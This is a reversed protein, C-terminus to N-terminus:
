DAFRRIKSPKAGGRGLNLSNLYPYFRNKSEQAVSRLNESLDDIKISPPLRWIANACSKQFCRFVMPPRAFIKLKAM